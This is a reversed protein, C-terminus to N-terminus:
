TQNMSETELVWRERRILEQWTNWSSRGFASCECNCTDAQKYHLESVSFQGLPEPGEEPKRGESEPDM